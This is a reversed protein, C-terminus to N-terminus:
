SEHKFDRQAGEGREKKVVGELHSEHSVMHLIHEDEDTAQLKM